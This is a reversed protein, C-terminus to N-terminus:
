NTQGLMMLLIEGDKGPVYDVNGGRHHITFDGELYLSEGFRRIGFVFM